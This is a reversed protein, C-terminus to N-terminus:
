EIAPLMVYLGLVDPPLQPQVSTRVGTQRAAARVRRHEELLKQGTHEALASLPEELHKMGDLIRGIFQSAQQPVINADPEAQLLQEVEADSLWQPTEPNGAFGVLRCEEALLATEEAGRQTIIHFRLRLLLLTTTRQVARTRIAGCRRAVGDRLPDLATDMVYSALGEVIPHTRNLYVAGDPVPLEFCATFRERGGAAEILAAQNPLTVELAGNKAVAFGEHARVVTAVFDRVDVGAGIAAREAQWERAVEEVRITRQAFMTRSRREKETVDEWRSHLGAIMSQDSLFDFAIQRQDMQNGRLLLGQMLAQVVESTNAPVPVSIGLSSRITRHKRLLVDLVIGDIQNDIGYYTVTRVTTKPQGYRDVRGERQEHRTPNWSLDYHVVADFHQQLNIGESLCDTAVLVRREHQGLAEVRAERDAPPLIGTVAAM